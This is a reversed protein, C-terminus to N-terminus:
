LHKVLHEVKFSFFAPFRKTHKSLYKKLTKRDKESSIVYYYYKYLANSTAKTKEELRGGIFKQLANPTEKENFCVSIKKLNSGLKLKQLFLSLYIVEKTPTM